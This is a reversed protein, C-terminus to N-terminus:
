SKSIARRIFEAVTPVTVGLIKAIERYRFGEARLHLCVQQQSSLTSIAEQLAVTRERELLAKEPDAGPQAQSELWRGVDEGSLSPRYIEARLHNLPLNSAVTFMWARVNHIQTGKGMTSYLKLFLEQTLDQAVSPKTGLAVLYRYIADRNEEYARSVFERPTMTTQYGAIGLSAANGNACVSSM